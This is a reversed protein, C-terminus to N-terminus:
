YSCVRCNSANCKSAFAPVKSNQPYYYWVHGSVSRFDILISPKTDVAISEKVLLIEVNEFTVYGYDDTIKWVEVINGNANQQNFM